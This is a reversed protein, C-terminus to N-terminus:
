AVVQMRAVARINQGQQQQEQFLLAVLESLEM